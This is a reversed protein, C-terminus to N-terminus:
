KKGIHYVNAAKKQESPKKQAERAMSGIQNGVENICVECMRGTLIQKGCRTCTVDSQIGASAELKGDRIYQLIRKVSVNCEDSVEKITRNPNEKVFVRVTEFREEEEKMCSACIPDRFKMFLKGCKPCNTPEM